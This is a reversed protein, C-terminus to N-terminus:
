QMEAQNIGCIGICGIIGESADIRIEYPFTRMQYISAM